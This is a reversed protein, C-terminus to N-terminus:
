TFDHCQSSELRWWWWIDVVVRTVRGVVVAEGVVKVVVAFVLDNTMSPPHHLSATTHLHPIVLQRTERRISVKKFYLEKIVCSVILQALRGHEEVIQGTEINAIFTVDQM